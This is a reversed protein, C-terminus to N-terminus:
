LVPLKYYKYGATVEFGCRQYLTLASKNKCEVELSIKSCGKELLSQVTESLIVKGYGKRQYNPLVCFGYIYTETESVLVSIKGISKGQVSAVTHLRNSQDIQKQRLKITESRDLRFCAVDMSVLDDIDHEGAKRLSVETSSSPLPIMENLTMGYESFSYTTKLAEMVANGSLSKEECIFLFNPIERVMLEQRAQSLLKRFIRKKRHDPHVMASVEAESERFIYLALYGVLKENEYLLFDNVENAPRSILMEWNLKMTLGEFQNCTEELVKIEDLQKGNLGNSSELRQGM